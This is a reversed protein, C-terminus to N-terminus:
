ESTHNVKCTQCAVLDGEKHKTFVQGPNGGHILFNLKDKLDEELVTVSGELVELSM